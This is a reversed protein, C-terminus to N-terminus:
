GRRSRGWAAHRERLVAATLDGRGLDQYNDTWGAVSDASIGVAFLDWARLEPVTVGAAEQYADLFSEAASAGHLLALDLRCWSVDLGRPALGAGSWDVVGSLREGDWLVNGSWYDFHTLVREQGAFASGGPLAALADRLLTLGQTRVGHLRALAAGLARPRPVGIDARGPLRSILVAPEGAVAGTPDAGYLRPVWGGLGDLATLVAAERAPAPDGAPYRRLVAEPPTGRTRVLHTAAHTGGALRRVGLVPGSTMAAVWALAQEPVSSM